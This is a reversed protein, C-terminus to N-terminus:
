LITCDLSTEIRNLLGLDLKYLSVRFGDFSTDRYNFM